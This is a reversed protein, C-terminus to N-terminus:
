DFVSPFRKTPKKPKLGNPAQTGAKKDDAEIDEETLMVNGNPCTPKCTTSPSVPSQTVQQQIVKDEELDCWVVMQGNVSAYVEICDKDSIDKKVGQLEWFDRWSQKALRVSEFTGLYETGLPTKAFARYEVAAKKGKKQVRLIGDGELYPGIEKLDSLLVDKYEKVASNLKTMVQERWKPSPGASSQYVARILYFADLPTFELQMNFNQSKM